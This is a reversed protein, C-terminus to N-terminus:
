DQIECWLRQFSLSSVDGLDAEGLDYSKGDLYLTLLNDKRVLKFHIPKEDLNDKVTHDAKFSKHKEGPKNIKYIWSNDRVHIGFSNGGASSIGFNFHHDQCPVNGLRQFTAEFEFDKLNPVFVDVASNAGLFEEEATVKWQKPAYKLGIRILNQGCSFGKGSVGPLFRYGAPKVPSITKGDADIADLTNDFSAFFVPKEILKVPKEELPTVTIDDIEFKVRYGYFTIKKIPLLTVDQVVCSQGDISVGFAKKGVTIDVTSWPADPGRSVVVNKGGIATSM